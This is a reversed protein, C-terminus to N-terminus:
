ESAFVLGLEQGPEFASEPGLADVEAAELGAEHEPVLLPLPEAELEPEAGPVPPPGAALLGRGDEPETGPVLDVDGASGALEGLVPAAPVDAAVSEAPEVPGAAPGAIEAPM